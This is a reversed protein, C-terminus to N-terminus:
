FGPPMGCLIGFASLICTLVAATQRYSYVLLRSHGDTKVGNIDLVMDRQRLEM